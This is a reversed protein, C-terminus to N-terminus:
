SPLGIYDKVKMFNQPAKEIGFLHLGLPKEFLHLRSTPIIYAYGDKCDKFYEDFHKKDIGAGEETKRWLSEKSDKIITSVVFYGIVKKVPSSSYIYVVDGMGINKPIIRRFEFKKDGSLIKEVFKPKISLIYRNNM